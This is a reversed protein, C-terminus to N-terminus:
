AYNWGKAAIMALEEETLKAINASGLTVLWTTGSTDGTKDALINILSLLSERDLPCWQVNMGNSALTGEFGVSALANDGRFMSNGNTCKTNASFILKDIKTLKPNVAFADSCNTMKGIDFTGLRTLNPMDFLMMQCTTANSTDLVVGNRELIGAVDSLRSTWFMAYVDGTLRMDYKPSWIDDTWGKGAFARAYSTKNGNEQFRDWFDSWEKTKGDEFGSSHGKDYGADYVDNIAGPMEEPKFTNETETKERIANAIDNYHKNDTVVLAM